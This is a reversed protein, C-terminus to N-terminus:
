TSFLEYFYRYSNSLITLQLAVDHKLVSSQVAANIIVQIVQAIWMLQFIPRNTEGVQGSNKTFSSKLHLNKGDTSFVSTSCDM